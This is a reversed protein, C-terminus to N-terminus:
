GSLQLSLAVVQAKGNKVRVYDYYTSGPKFGPLTKTSKLRNKRYYVRRRGNEKGNALDSKKVRMIWRANLARSSSLSSYRAAASFQNFDGVFYKTSGTLKASRMRGYPELYISYEDSEWRTKKYYVRGNKISYIYHGHSPVLSNRGVQRISYYRYNGSAKVKMGSGAAFLLTLSLIAMALLVKRVEQKVKM